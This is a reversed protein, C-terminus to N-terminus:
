KKYSPLQVEQPIPALAQVEAVTADVQKAPYKPGLVEPIQLIQGVPDVAQVEDVAYDAHEVPYEKTPEDYIQTIQVEVPAEAHVVETDIGDAQLV